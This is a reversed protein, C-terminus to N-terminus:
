DKKLFLLIYWVCSCVRVMYLTRKYYLTSNTIHVISIYQKDQHIFFHIGKERTKGPIFM